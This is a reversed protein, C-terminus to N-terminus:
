FNQLSLNFSKKINALRVFRIRSSAKLFISQPNSENTKADLKVDRQSLLQIIFRFARRDNVYWM